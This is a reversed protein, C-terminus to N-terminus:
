KRGVLRKLAKKRAIFNKGEGAKILSRVFVGFEETAGLSEGLTADSIVDYAACSTYLSAGARFIKEEVEHDESIKKFNQANM